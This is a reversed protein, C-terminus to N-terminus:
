SATYFFCMFWGSVSHVSRGTLKTLKLWLSLLCFRWMDVFDTCMLECCFTKQPALYSLASSFLDELGLTPLELSLAVSQHKLNWLHFEATLLISGDEEAPNLSTKRRHQAVHFSRRWHDKFHLSQRHNSKFRWGRPNFPLASIGQAVQSVSTSPFPLVCYKSVDSFQFFLMSYTAKQIPCHCKLFISWDAQFDGFSRGITTWCSVSNTSKVPWFDAM